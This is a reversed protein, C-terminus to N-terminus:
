RGKAQRMRLDLFVTESSQELDLSTYRKSRRKGQECKDHHVVARCDDSLM